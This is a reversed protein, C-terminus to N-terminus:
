DQIADAAVVVSQAKEKTRRLEQFRALNGYTGCWRAFMHLMALWAEHECWAPHADVLANLAPVMRIAPTDEDLGKARLRAMIEDEVKYCAVFSRTLDKRTIYKETM